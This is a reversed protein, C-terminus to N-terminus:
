KSEAQRHQRFVVIRIETSGTVIDDTEITEIQKSRLTLCSDEDWNEEAYQM